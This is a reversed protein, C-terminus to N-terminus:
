KKKGDKKTSNNKNKGYFKRIIRYDRSIRFLRKIRELTKRKTKM